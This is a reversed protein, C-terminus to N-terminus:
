CRAAPVLGSLHAHSISGLPFTLSQCPSNHLPLPNQIPSVALWPSRALFISPSYIGSRGRLQQRPERGASGLPFDFPLPSPHHHEPHLVLHLRSSSLPSFITPASPLFETCPLLRGVHPLQATLSSCSSSPAWSAWAPGLGTEGMSGWPLKHQSHLDRPGTSRSESEAGRSHAKPIQGKPCRSSTDSLGPCPSGIGQSIAVGPGQHEPDKAQSDPPLFGLLHLHSLKM